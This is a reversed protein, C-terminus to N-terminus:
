DEDDIAIDKIDDAWDVWIDDGPPEEQLMPMDSLTFDYLVAKRIQGSYNHSAMHGIRHHWFVVDGPEGFTQYSKEESSEFEERHKEVLPSSEIRYRSHYDHFFKRHSKPWVTFGGGDQPVHDIYGVVGFNFPHADVHLNRGKRKVDGYPLTCYIGRIGKPEPFRGKGLMQEAAGWVTPNKALLNVMWPERGLQRYQWRHGRKYNRRDTSEEEPKIPGVWTSPDDQKMSPPPDDWLRERARACLEPDLVGKKVLYGERKFFCLEDETLASM